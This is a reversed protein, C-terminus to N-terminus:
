LLGPGGGVIDRGAGDDRSSTDEDHWRILQDHRQAADEAGPDPLCAWTTARAQEIADPQPEVRRVGNDAHRNQLREAEAIDGRAYADGIAAVEANSYADAPDFTAVPQAGRAHLEAVRATLDAVDDTPTSNVPGHEAAARMEASMEVRDAQDTEQSRDAAQIRALLVDKDALFAAREAPDADRGAASLNRLRAALDAIERVTPAPDRHYDHTPSM